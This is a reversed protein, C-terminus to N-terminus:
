GPRLPLALEVRRGTRLAAVVQGAVATAVFGDWAGAAGGDIRGGGIADIWAQDQLRYADAFRPIWDPPYSSQRAGDHRTTVLAPEAMAVTGKDCVAETHVHYGYAANMFVETSVIAGTAAELVIMLPDGIGMGSTSGVPFVTAATFEAGLLWRCVDIEHVFSNTIAMDATFWAPAAQNRHRCHLVRVAGLAGGDITAKIQRYAPDFRRMFGTSVLRRGSRAEAEVVELCEDPTAALPKECLVPKGARLAALVLGHHTADPSAVIVADVDPAEILALPDAVTRAGAAAQRARTEDPDAVAVLHAGSIAGRVIRAHDAGMVGAGIVGVGVSM